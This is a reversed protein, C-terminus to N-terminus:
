YHHFKLARHPRGYFRSGYVVDAIKRRAVLDYMASWDNPDYELDADQVVAVDGTVAALGTQLAGGKGRNREQYIPRITVRSTGSDPKFVLDGSPGVEVG